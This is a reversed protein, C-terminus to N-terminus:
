ECRTEETHFACCLTDSLVYAHRNERCSKNSVNKGGVFVYRIVSLICVCIGVNYTVM